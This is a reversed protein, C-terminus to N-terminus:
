PATLNVLCGADGGARTACFAATENELRDGKKHGGYTALTHCGRVRTYGFMRSLVVLSMGDGRKRMTIAGLWM